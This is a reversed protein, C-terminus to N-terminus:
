FSVPKISVCYQTSWMDCATWSVSLVSVGPPYITYQYCTQTNILLGTTYFRKNTLKTLLIWEINAWNVYVYWRILFCSSPRSSCVSITPHPEDTTFPKSLGQSSLCDVFPASGNLCFLCHIAHKSIRLWCIIINWENITRQSFSFKRIDLTCQENAITVAHGRTRRM